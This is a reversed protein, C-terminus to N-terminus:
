NIPLTSQSTDTTVQNAVPSFILATVEEKKTLPLTFYVCQLTEVTM